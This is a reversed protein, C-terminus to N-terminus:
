FAITATLKFKLNDKRKPLEYAGYRYFVGVGVGSFASSIVNNLMLGSEFFGKDMTKVQQVIFDPLQKSLDGYGINTVLVVDPKFYKTRLLRKGLDQQLFLATYRDSFFEYPAMTEFGEGAYVEYNDSYSGYGNYLNVFPANGSVLGATFTTNTEGFTRHQFTAELRLDYKNYGYNGDLVGNLGRTYQLWLVPYKGPMPMTQNFQQMLQEGYAYRLGAKAETITYIDQPQDSTSLLTPRREEQQLQTHLQLYRGLRGSLGVHQHTAYDLFPLLPRRLDSLLTTERFPLRRGGPELVDEWYAAELTLNTPKHLIFAV